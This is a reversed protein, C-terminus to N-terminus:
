ATGGLSSGRAQGLIDALLIAIRMPDRGLDQGAFLQYRSTQYVLHKLIDLHSSVLHPELGLVASQRILHLLAEARGVPRLQSVPAAVIRPFILYQPQCVTLVQEPWLAEVNLRQKREQALPCPYWHAVIDPFYRAAELDLCIERRLPLAELRDGCPRVLLADDSLYGWGQRVLSCALTSKGSDSDAVLLVGVNDKAVGAAHLAYLGRYRLLCLLSYLVLDKRVRKSANEAGPRLTGMATGAAPDLQMVVAGDSLYLLHAARWARVGAHEAVPLAGPPIALCGAATLLTFTVPQEARVTPAVRLGFYMCLTQLHQAVMADDWCVRICVGHLTYDQHALDTVNHLM